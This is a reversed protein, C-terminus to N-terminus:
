LLKYERYINRVDEKYKKSLTLVLGDNLIVLMNKFDIHMVYEMNVIIGYSIAICNKYDILSLIKKFTCRIRFDKLAHIVIYNKETEIYKVDRYYISVIRNSSHLVLKHNTKKKLETLLKEMSVSFDVDLVRKRIFYFIDFKLSDFIIQDYNTIVIKLYHNNKTLEFFEFANMLPMYFDIFVVDYKEIKEILAYPDTYLDVVMNKYKTFYQNLKELFEYQDDLLAIRYM